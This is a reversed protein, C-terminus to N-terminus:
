PLSILSEQLIIRQVLIQMGIQTSGMPTPQTQQGKKEWTHKILDRTDSSSMNIQEELSSAHHFIIRTRPSIVEVETVLITEVEPIGAM